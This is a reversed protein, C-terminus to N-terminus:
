NGFKIKVVTTPQRCCRPFFKSIEMCAELGPCHMLMIKQVDYDKLAQITKKVREASASVLHTGGVVAFINREGTLECVYEMTNVVGAHGCGLLIVVGQPVRFFLAQDDILPDPTQLTEDLYAYGHVGTDEFNNRRPIQGTVMFSDCVTTPEKTEILNRVRERIELITIPIGVKIVQSSDKWYKPQLAAPHAYLDVEVCSELVKGLGGTHDDHGHSLVIANTRSLDINLAEANHLLAHGYGTDYLIHHGNSEIWFSVGWEGLLPPEGAMNEVLVTVTVSPLTNLVQGVTRKQETPSRSSKCGGALAAWIFICLFASIIITTGKEINKGASM